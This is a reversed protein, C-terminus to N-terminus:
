PLVRRISMRVFGMPRILRAPWTPNAHRTRSMGLRKSLSLPGRQVGVM